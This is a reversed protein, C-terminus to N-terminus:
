TLRETYILVTFRKHLIIKLGFHRTILNNIRRIRYDKGNYTKAMNNPDQAKSNQAQQPIRREALNLNSITHRHRLSLSLFFFSYCPWSQRWATQGWVRMLRSTSFRLAKQGKGSYIRACWSACMCTDQCEFLSWQISCVGACMFFGVHMWVCVSTVLDDEGYKATM